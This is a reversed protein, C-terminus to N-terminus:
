NPLNTGIYQVFRAAGDEPCSFESKMVETIFGSIAPEELIITGIYWAVHHWM